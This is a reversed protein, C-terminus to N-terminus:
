FSTTVGVHGQVSDGGDLPVGVDARLNLYRSVQVRLGGGMSTLSRHAEQGAGTKDRWGGAHDLFGLFQIQVPLGDGASISLPPTRLETSIVYGRDALFEREEFGRITAHGGLGLQETPLLAGSALQLQGSTRLTWSKPLRRVWVGRARGYFYSAEAGPRFREFDRDSNRGSLGGPSAVLSASLQLGGEKGFQRSARYDARFQLVEVVAGPYTNTGGFVLFNDSSKYELGVSVEQKFDHWRNLQVGYAGGLQWSAGSTDVLIGGSRRQASIEAWGGSLRVFHHRPHLPIEWSVAHASLEELSGSTTFQYNLSHDLGFANGWNFGALYRNDGAAEAGSNEYGGYVRWPRREGFAFVMDAEGEGPGPAAYLTAPRFPNRNFWDLHRQLESTRLVEGGQLRVAGALLEDNFIGKSEFGITGVVGDIVVLEITGGDLDQDPAYVDTVPRDNAEYHRLLTEILRDLGRETLPEDLFPLLAEGLDETDVTLGQAMVRGGNTAISSGEGGDGNGTLRISELRTILVETDDAEEREVVKRKGFPLEGETQGALGRPALETGDQALLASPPGVGLLFALVHTIITRVPM